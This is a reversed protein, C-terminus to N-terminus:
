CVVTRLLAMAVFNRRSQRKKKRRRREICSGLSACTYLSATALHFFPAFSPEALVPSTIHAPQARRGPRDTISTADLRPSPRWRCGQLSLKPILARQESQFRHAPPSDHVAACICGQSDQVPLLPCLDNTPPPPPWTGTQQHQYCTQKVLFAPSAAGPSSLLPAGQAFPM